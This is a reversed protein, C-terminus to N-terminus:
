IPASTNPRCPGSMSASNIISVARQHRSSPMESCTLGLQVGDTRQFRAGVVAVRQHCVSCNVSLSSSSLLRRIYVLGSRTSSELVRVNLRQEVVRRREAIIKVFLRFGVKGAQARQKVIGPDAVGDVLARARGQNSYGCRTRTPSWWGQNGHCRRRRRDNRRGTSCSPPRAVGPTPKAM